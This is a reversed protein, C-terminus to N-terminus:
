KIKYTKGTWVIVVTGGIQDAIDRLGADLRLYKETGRKVDKTGGGSYASDYWVGGRFEFRKGGATKTLASEINNKAMPLNQVQKQSQVQAMPGAPRLAKSSQVSRQRIQMDDRASTSVGDLVATQDKKKNLEAETKAERTAATLDAVSKDSETTISPAAQPQITRSSTDGTAVTPPANVVAREEDAPIQQESSVNSSGIAVGTKTVSEIPSSTSSNSMANATSNTSYTENREEPLSAAQPREAIQSVQESRGSMREQYVLLGIIGSFLVVLIGMSYALRQGVFLMRYWPLQRAAGPEPALASESAAAAKEPAAAVFTSLMMRCSDCDALHAIYMHRANEPMANEAFAALEDADLHAAAPAAADSPSARKAQRLLADIEKDFELEM